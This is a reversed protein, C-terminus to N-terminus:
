PVFPRKLWKWKLFFADDVRLDDPYDDDSSYKAEVMKLASRIRLISALSSQTSNWPIIDDRSSRAAHELLKGSLQRRSPMCHVSSPRLVEFFRRTSPREIWNFSMSNDAIMEIIRQNLLSIEAPSMARDMFGLMSSSKLKKLSSSTSSGQTKSSHTSISSVRDDECPASCAANKQAQVQLYVMCVKLHNKM